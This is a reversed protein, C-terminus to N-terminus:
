LVENKLRRKKAAALAGEQKVKQKLVKNLVFKARKEAIDQKKQFKKKKKSTQYNRVAQMKSLSFFQFENKKEILNM